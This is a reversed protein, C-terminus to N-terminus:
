DKVTIKKSGKVKKPTPQTKILDPEDIMGAIEETVKHSEAEHQEIFTSPTYEKGLAKAADKNAKRYIGAVDLVKVYDDDSLGVLYDLVSDYNVAGLLAQPEDDQLFAALQPKSENRKFLGM